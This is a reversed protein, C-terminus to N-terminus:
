EDDVGEGFRVVTQPQEDDELDFDREDRKAEDERERPSIEYHSLWADFEAGDAQTKAM